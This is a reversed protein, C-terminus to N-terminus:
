TRRRRRKKKEERRKRAERRVASMRQHTNFWRDSDLGVIEQAVLFATMAIDGMGYLEYFEEHTFRSRLEAISQPPPSLFELVYNLQYVGPFRSFGINGFDRRTLVDVGCFLIEQDEWLELVDRNNKEWRRM